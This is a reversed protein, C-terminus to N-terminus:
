LYKVYGMQMPFGFANVGWIAGNHDINYYLGNPFMYVWAINPDASSVRSAVVMPLNTMPNLAVIQNAPTLFYQHMDGNFFCQAVYTQQPPPAPQPPHPPNVPADERARKEIDRLINLLAMRIGNLDKDDEIGANLKKKYDKWRGKQLIAQDYLDHDNDRHELYGLMDELAEELRDDGILNRIKKANLSM